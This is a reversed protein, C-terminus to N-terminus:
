YIMACIASFIEHDIFSWLSLQLSNGAHQWVPSGYLFLCSEISLDLNSLHYTMDFYMIYAVMDLCLNMIKIFISCKIGDCSNLVALQLRCSLRDRGAKEWTSWSSVMLVFYWLTNAYPIDQQGIIEM